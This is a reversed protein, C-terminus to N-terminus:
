RDQQSHRLRTLLAVTPFGDPVLGQATQFARLAARTNPGL